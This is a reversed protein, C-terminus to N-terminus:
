EPILVCFAFGNKVTRFYNYSAGKKAIGRKKSFNISVTYSVLSLSYLVGYCHLSPCSIKKLRNKQSEEVSDDKLHVGALNKIEQV